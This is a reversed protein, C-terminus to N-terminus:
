KGKTPSGIIPWLTIDGDDEVEEDRGAAPAVRPFKNHKTFRLRLRGGRVEIM